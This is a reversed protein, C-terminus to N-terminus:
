LFALIHTGMSHHLDSHSCGQEENHFYEQGENYSYVQEESDSCWQWGEAEQEALNCGLELVLGAWICDMLSEWPALKCSMMRWWLQGDVDAEVDDEDEWDRMHPGECSSDAEGAESHSEWAEWRHPTM